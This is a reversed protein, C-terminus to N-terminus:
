SQELVSILADVSSATNSTVVVTDGTELIIKGDLVSLSSNAPIPVTKILTAGACSVAIKIQSATVNSINLGITTSTTGAAVTTVTAPSTGVGASTYNTIVNPM